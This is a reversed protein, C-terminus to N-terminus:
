PGAADPEPATRAAVVRPLRLSFVSGKGVESHVEILGGQAQAAHQAIQLGIGAGGLSGPQAQKFLETQKEAAIGPGSDRVHFVVSEAEEQAEVIVFGETTYKVANGVLNSLADLFLDPDLTMRLSRNVHAEFRLGMRAAQPEHDSVIGDVLHAPHVEEPRVPVEWTHFRELRLIGDVLVSIRRVNRRLKDIAEASPRQENRGLLEAQISLASLPTRLQHMVAALYHARQKRVEGAQHEVYRRVSEATLEFMSRYFYSYELFSVEIRREEIWTRVVDIALDYERVVEEIPIEQTVRAEPDLRETVKWMQGPNEAASLDLLQEGILRLQPSLHDKLAAEAVGHHPTAGARWQEYWRQVLALHNDRLEEGLSSM